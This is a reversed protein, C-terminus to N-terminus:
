VCVGFKSQTNPCVSMLLCYLGPDSAASQDPDVNNAVRRATQLKLYVLLLLISM